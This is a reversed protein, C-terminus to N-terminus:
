LYAVYLYMFTHAKLCDLGLVVEETIQAIWFEHFMEKGAVGLTLRVMGSIPIRQGTVTKLHKLASDRTNATLGLKGVLKPNIVTVSSGTDVVMKVDTGELLANVALGDCFQM